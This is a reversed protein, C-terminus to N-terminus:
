PREAPLVRLDDDVDWHILEGHDPIGIESAPDHGIQVLHGVIELDPPFLAKPGRPVAAGGPSREVTGRDRYPAEILGDNVDRPPCVTLKAMDM